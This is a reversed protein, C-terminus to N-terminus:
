QKSTKKSGWKPIAKPVWTPSKPESKPDRKAVMKTVKQPVMKADINLDWFVDFFPKSGGFVDFFPPAGRGRGRNINCAGGEESEEGRTLGRRTSGTVCRVGLFGSSEPVAPCREQRLQLCRDQRLLM